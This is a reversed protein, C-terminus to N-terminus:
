RGGSQIVAQLREPMSDVWKNITEQTISAWGEFFLAKTSDEDWHPHRRTYSKPIQWANEIPSLDPSLSCNFYHALHHQQKWRHATSDKGTGHGSDNDEELVFQHGAELWPKVAPELIQNIYVWSSAARTYTIGAMAYHALLRMRDRTTNPCLLFFFVDMLWRGSMRKSMDHLSEERQSTQSPYLRLTIIIVKDTM